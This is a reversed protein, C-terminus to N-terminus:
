PTWDRPDDELYNAEWEKPQKLDMEDIIEPADDESLAAVMIAGSRGEEPGVVGEGKAGRKELAKIIPKFQDSKQYWIVTRVPYKREILRDAIFTYGRYRRLTVVDDINFRGDYPINAIKFRPPNKSIVEAWGSEGDSLFIRILDPKKKKAM